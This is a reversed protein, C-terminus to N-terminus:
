DDSRGRRGPSRGAAWGSGDTNATWAECPDMSDLLREHHACYPRLEKGKRAYEVYACNGCYRDVPPSPPSSSPSPSSPETGGDGRAESESAADIRGFVGVGGVGSTERPREVEVIRTEGRRIVDLSVTGGPDNRTKFRAVGVFLCGFTITLGVLYLATV